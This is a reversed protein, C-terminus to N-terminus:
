VNGVDAVKRSTNVMYAANFLEMAEGINWSDMLEQAEAESLVPDVLTASVLSPLFTKAWQANAPDGPEPKHKSLLDDFALRGIARFHLEVSEDRALALAAAQEAQAKKLTAAKEAYASRDASERFVREEIEADRVAQAAKDTADALQPDLLITVTHELPKKNTLKEFTARKLAAQREATDKGSM